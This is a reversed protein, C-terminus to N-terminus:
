LELGLKEEDTLMKQDSIANALETQLDPVIPDISDETIGGLVEDKKPPAIIKYSADRFNKWTVIGKRLINLRVKGSKVNITSGETTGDKKVSGLTVNGSLEDELLTTKVGGICTLTFIPWLEKPLEYEGNKNKKRYAKPVYPWQAGISFGLMGTKRLKEKYEETLEIDKGEKDPM